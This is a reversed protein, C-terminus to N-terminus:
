SFKTKRNFVRNVRTSDGVRCSTFELRLRQPSGHRRTTNPLTRRTPVGTPCCVSPAPFRRAPCSPSARWRLQPAMRKADVLDVVLLPLPPLAAHHDRPDPPPSDRWRSPARPSPGGVPSCRRSGPRRSRSAPSRPLRRSTAGPLHETAAHPPNLLRPPSRRRPHLRSLSRPLRRPARGPPPPSSRAAPHLHPAARPLLHLPARPPTVSRFLM